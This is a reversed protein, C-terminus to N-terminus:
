GHSQSYGIRSPEPTGHIGYHEKSLDIWVPGVPNNPGPAIKAKSHTPDADWFLQPNYHFPPNKAVGNIKWTGIPLPDHESGITAPYQAILKGAADLASVTLKSKSVVVTAAKVPIETAVNPAIIEEGAASFTKGPNLLKLLGPSTHFKEGLAELVSEYGLRTLKSKEMMDEPIKEYPGAVDEQTLAYPTVAPATDVNLMKWTETDVIGSAPLGRSEQFGALARLFNAGAFGDIEGVSFNARDLIVQARVVAAGKMKAAVPPMQSADNIANADFKVVPEAM